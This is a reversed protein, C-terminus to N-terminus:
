WQYMYLLLLQHWLYGKKKTIDKFVMVIQNVQGPASIKKPTIKSLSCM